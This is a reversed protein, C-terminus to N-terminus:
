RRGGSRHGNSIIERAGSQAYMVEALAAERNHAKNIAAQQTAVQGAVPTEAYAAPPGSRQQRPIGRSVFDQYPLTYDTPLRNWYEAAANQQLNMLPNVGTVRAVVARSGSPRAANLASYVSSLPNRPAPGLKYQQFVMRQPLYEPMNAAAAECPACSAQYQEIAQGVLEPSRPYLHSRKLTLSLAEVDAPLRYQGAPFGQDRGWGSNGWSTM